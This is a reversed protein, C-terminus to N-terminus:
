DHSNNIRSKIKLHGNRCGEPIFKIWVDQSHYMLQKKIYIRGRDLKFHLDPSTIAGSASHSFTITAWGDLTGDVVLDITTPSTDSCKQYGTLQDRFVIPKTVNVVEFEAFKDVNEDCKRFFIPAVMLVMIGLIVGVYVFIFKLSFNIFKLFLKM